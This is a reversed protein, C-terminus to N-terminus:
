KKRPKIDLRYTLTLLAYAPRSNLRTETRGQPNIVQKITPLQQLLDLGIAKVVWQKSRGFAKSLQLNWVWDTTNMTPDEYGRRCYAMLDTDLDINWPLTYQVGIGYNVDTYSFNSFLNNCSHMHTWSFEAKASLKLPFSFTYNLQLNDFITWGDVAVRQPTDSDSSFDVSHRLKPIFDNSLNLRKQRDIYSDYHFNGYIQWNGNINQPQWITVGTTRDYTRAMAIANDTRRYQVEFSYYTQRSGFRNTVYASINYDNSKHLDANGLSIRLPDSNDRVDLMQMIDPLQERYGFRIGYGSNWQDGIELGLHGDYAWDQRNLLRTTHDRFDNLHRIDYIGNGNLNIHLRNFYLDIGAELNHRWERRTTRYSNAEDLMWSGAMSPTANDDTEELERRGYNFKQTYTYTASARMKFKKDSISYSTNWYPNITYQWNRSPSNDRQQLMFDRAPENPYIVHDSNDSDTKINDYNGNANIGLIHYHVCYLHFYMKWNTTFKNDRINWLQQRQYLIDRHWDDSGPATFNEPLMSNSKASESFRKETGKDYGVDTSFWIRCIDGFIRSIEGRWNLQWTGRDNSSRLRSFTNGGTIYQEALESNSNLSTQRIVDVTTNLGNGTQDHWDTNFELGARKTTTEGALTRPKSWQGKRGAKQPDNLNNASAHMAFYSFKDYRMAFLRGMWRTDWGHGLASGAGGEANAIWGGMYERKLNVDMVLPDQSRDREINMGAYQDPTKRYVQVNKVTYSPLNRLAIQPDGNFFKRGNILLESVFQGNVTIQGDDNLTAGPLTAILADLMSGEPLQFATADYELTDGKMVM